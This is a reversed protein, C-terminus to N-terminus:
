QFATLSNSLKIIKYADRECNYSFAQCAMDLDTAEFTINTKYRNKLINLVNLIEQLQNSEWDVLPRSDPLPRDIAIVSQTSDQSICSIDDYSRNLGNDVCQYVVPGDWTDGTDSDLTSKYKIIPKRLKRLRKQEDTLIYEKRMGYDFCKQLRCKRCLKRTSVDINCKGNFTCQYDKNRLANRRFFAKCSECTIANFNNSYM